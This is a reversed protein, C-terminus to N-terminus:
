DRFACDFPRFGITGINCCSIQANALKQRPKPIACAILDARAGQPPVVIDPLWLVDTEISGSLGARKSRWRWGAM